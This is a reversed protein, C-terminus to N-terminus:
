GEQLPAEVDIILPKYIGNMARLAQEKSVGPKLRAFLYAWYSRRSDFGKWGPIMLERMTIPVFISPRSGLTAGDFGRAAVGVITMSHGNVIIQQNLVTPSSGLKAEWYNYGLVTVYHTGIVRDDEPTLM